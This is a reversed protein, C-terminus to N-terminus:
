QIEMGNFVYVGAEVSDAADAKYYAIEKEILSDIIFIKVSETNKGDNRDRHVSLITNAADLFHTHIRFVQKAGNVVFPSQSNNWDFSTKDFNFFVDMAVIEIQDPEPGLFQFKLSTSTGISWGLNFHAHRSDQVRGGAPASGCFSLAFPAVCLTKVKAPDSTLSVSITGTSNTKGTVRQFVVDSVGGALNISSIQIGSPLNHIENAPDALNYVDGKFLIHRNNEFHVGHQSLNESALTKNKAARLVSVLEKSVNQLDAEKILIKFALVAFTLLVVLLAFVSLFEIITFGKKSLRRYPLFQKVFKM